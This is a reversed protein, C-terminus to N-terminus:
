GRRSPGRNRRPNSTCGAEHMNPRPQVTRVENAMDAVIERYLMRLMFTVSRILEEGYNHVMEIARYYHDPNTFRFGQYLTPIPMSQLLLGIFEENYTRQIVAFFSVGMLRDQVPWREVIEVVADMMIGDFPPEEGQQELLANMLAGDNDM